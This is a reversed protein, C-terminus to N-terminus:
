DDFIAAGDYTEMDWYQVPIHEHIEHWFNFGCYKCDDDKGNDVHVHRSLILVKNLERELTRAFDALRDGTYPPDGCERSMSYSDMEMKEAADTRPTESKM